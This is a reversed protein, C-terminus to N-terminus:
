EEKWPMEEAGRPSPRTILSRGAVGAGVAARELAQAIGPAKKEGDSFALISSGAGSLFVGVAGVQLAAEFLRGMAPFLAQRAPQHLRDRTGQRLYELEGTVLARVLFAVRALNFVADERSVQPPLLVRAKKTPMEFEPIFLVALLGPPLPLPARVFGEGNRAVAQCGGFLAPAVNDPHGEMGAGLALLEERSLPEGLLLNGAVMGGVVAAASSGLGRALPVDNRAFIKLGPVRVGAREFVAALGRYVLNRRDRPLTQAGYGELSFELEHGVEAAVENFLELAMGLCDFGPGLNATTAPVRVRVRERM